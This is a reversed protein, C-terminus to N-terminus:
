AAKDYYELAEALVIYRSLMEEDRVISASLDEYSIGLMDTLVELLRKIIALLRQWLTLDMLSERQKEFLAGMTEYDNLRKDIALVIYTMHCLTCDAIQGDFDRGQYQGLRLHPQDNEEAHEKRLIAFFRVCMRLLLTSWDMTERSMMRYYCNKGTDVLSVFNKEIETINQM